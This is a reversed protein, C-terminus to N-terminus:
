HFKFFDEVINKTIHTDELTESDFSLSQIVKDNVIKVILPVSTVDYKGLIDKFYISERYQDTDFYYLKINNSMSLNNMIPNLKQCLPCTPRTFYIFSDEMCDILQVDTIPTINGLLNNNYSKSIIVVSVIIIILIPLFKLKNKM